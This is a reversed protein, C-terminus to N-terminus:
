FEEDNYIRWTTDQKLDKYFEKNYHINYLDVKDTKLDEDSKLEILFFLEKDIDKTYLAFDPKLEFKLILEEKLFDRNLFGAARAEEETIYKFSKIQTNKITAEIEYSGHNSFITDNPQPNFIEQRKFILLTIEGRRIPEFYKKDIRINHQTM